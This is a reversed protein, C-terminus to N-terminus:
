KDKKIFVNSAGKLKAYEIRLLNVLENLADCHAMNVGLDDSGFFSDIVDKSIKRKLAPRQITRPNHTIVHIQSNDGKEQIETIEGERKARQIKRCSKCVSDYRVAKEHKGQKQSYDSEIKSINCKKCKKPSM